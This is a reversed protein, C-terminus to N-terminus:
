RESFEKIFEPTLEGSIKLLEGHSSARFMLPVGTAGISEFISNNQKIKDLSKPNIISSIAIGTGGDSMSKEHESMTQKPDGSSLITAGQPLSKDNIFAVPIWVISVDKVLNDQTNQWLKNCHPCQPDFFVYLYAGDDKLIPGTIFYSTKSKLEALSSSATQKESNNSQNTSAPSEIKATSKQDDCATIMLTSSLIISSIITKQKKSIM